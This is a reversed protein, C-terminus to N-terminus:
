PHLLTSQYLIKGDVMTLYPIFLHTGELRNGFKDRFVVKRSELKLVSIDAVSDPLLCGMNGSSGWQASPAETVANIVSSLEMGLALFKSMMAPMNYVFPHCWNYINLDTSISDPYFGEQIAKRAIPLSLNGQGCATDFIVGHKRAEWFARCVSGNDICTSGSGHYMHTLIDGERLLSAIDGMSPPNTTHVVVRTQYREALKLAKKLPDLGLEKVVGKSVRIKLAMIRDHYEAFAEDFLGLDWKSPDVSEPFQNAMIIGSASVNLMFKTKTQCDMLADALAACNSVGTSGADAAATVGTSLNPLDVMMGSANGKYNLHTHIDIIGPIVMCGSVDIIRKASFREDASPMIKGNYIALDGIRDIGRLPNYLRGNKLIIDYKM